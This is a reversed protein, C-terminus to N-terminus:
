TAGAAACSPTVRTRHGPRDSVQVMEVLTNACLTAQEINNADIEPELAEFYLYIESVLDHTTVQNTQIRLHDQMEINHGECMLRLLELVDLICARSAFEREIDEKMM